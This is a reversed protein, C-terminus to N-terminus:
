NVADQHIREWRSNMSLRSRGDVIDATWRYTAPWTTFVPDVKYLFRLSLKSENPLWGYSPILEIAMHDGNRTVRYEGQIFGTAPSGSIEFRGKAVSGSFVGLNPFAPNFNLTVIHKGDTQSRSALEAVGENMALLYSIDGRDVTMNENRTVPTLEGDYGPNFMAILPNSCYRAFNMRTFDIPLPLIDSQHNRGNIEISIETNSRRVFYFENLLILPMATPNEATLGMPALLGFPKRTRKSSEIVQFQIHRGHIDEFEVQAQVGHDKVYFFSDEFDREAMNALGKGTISYKEHEPQLAPDHYVDVKGDARWGIVLMADSRNPADIIQPEFGVYLTDSDNEINILLLRNMPEIEIRFPDYFQLGDTLVETGYREEFSVAEMQENIISEPPIPKAFVSVVLVLIMLNPIAGFRADQWFRFVLIQSVLAGALGPIWWSQLNFALLIGALLLTLGAFLWIFGWMRSVTLNLKNLDALKFAKMFGMLHILGHLLFIIFLITKM